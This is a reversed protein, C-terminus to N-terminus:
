SPQLGHMLGSQLGSWTFLSVHMMRAPRNSQLAEPQCVQMLEQVDLPLQLALNVRGPPKPLVNGLQVILRCKRCSHQQTLSPVALSHLVVVPVSM